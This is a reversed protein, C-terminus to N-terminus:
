AKDDQVLRLEDRVRAAAHDYFQNQGAEDARPPAARARLQHSQTRDNTVGIAKLM